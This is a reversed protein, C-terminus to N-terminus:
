CILKLQAFEEVAFDVFARLRPAMHRASPLVLHVPLPQPEHDRLLRQLRGAQLDPAVQYSLARAIGFGARAADLIAEVDNLQLRPAFRVVHEGDDVRYRWQAVGRIGTSLILEHGALAEPTRPEGCRELYAPSAVTFRRVVGLKRAVLGSSDLPGIRLALDIGNEILDLNRDVLNLDIQIDPYRTLFRTVVPAVHRRGFVVPATMRLLGRPPAESHERVALEYQALVQRAQGALRMGESTPTLSRTSREFLRVGMRQELSGLLRTVASASRRLKNAAAAMSGAEFVALFVQLEELRDM